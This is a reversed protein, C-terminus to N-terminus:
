IDIQKKKVIFEASVDCSVLDSGNNLTSTRFLLTSSPQLFKTVVQVDGDRTVVTRLYVTNATDCTESFVHVSQNTSEQEKM